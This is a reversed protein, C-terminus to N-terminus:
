DRFCSWLGEKVGDMDGDIYGGSQVPNGNKIKAVKLSKLKNVIFSTLFILFLFMM